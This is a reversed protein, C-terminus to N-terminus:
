RGDTLAAGEFLHLMEPLGYATTITLGVPRQNEMEDLMAGSMEAGFSIVGAVGGRWGVAVHTVDPEHMFVIYALHSATGPAVRESRMGALTFLKYESRPIGNPPTVLTLDNTTKLDTM